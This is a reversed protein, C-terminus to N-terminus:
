FNLFASSLNESDEAGLQQLSFVVRRKPAVPMFNLNKEISTITFCLAGVKRRLDGCNPAQPSSTHYSITIQLPFSSPSVTHIMKLAMLSALEEGKVRTAEENWKFAEDGADMFSKNEGIRLRSYDIALRSAPDTPGKNSESLPAKSTSTMAYESPAGPQPKAAPSSQARTTLEAEPAVAPMAAITVGTSAAVLPTTKTSTSSSLPTGTQHASKVDTAASFKAVKTLPRGRFLPVLFTLIM